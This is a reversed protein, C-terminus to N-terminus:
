DEQWFGRTEMVFHGGDEWAFQQTAIVSTQLASLGGGSLLIIAIIGLMLAWVIRSFLAPADERSDLQNSSTMM